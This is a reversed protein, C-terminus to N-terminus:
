DAEPASLGSIYVPSSTLPITVVGDVPEVQSVVGNAATVTAATSSSFSRVVDDGTAWAVRVVDKDTGFVVVTSTDDSEQASFSKGNLQTINLAQVFASFKPARAVVNAQPQNEFLGFNHEVNAADTGDNILDYWFYKEAGNAFASVEARILWEGQETISAGGTMTTFGLESIWVPKTAGANAQMDAYAQAVLDGVVDPTRNISAEYPHFSVADSLPLGGSKWLEVFWDSPYLGTSGSVIPLDPYADSVHRRVSDVFRVYCSAAKDCGDQSDRLNYENFVELGVLDFNDAVARAYAGYAEIAEDNNPAKSSGYLKNGYVILGLIQVGNAHMIPFERQYAEDWVYQGRTQENKEWNIDNRVESIGLSAVLSGANEYTEKEVHTGVGFRADQAVYFNDSDLVAINTDVTFGSADAVSLAYHGQPLGDLPIASLGSTVSTSGGIADGGLSPTATWTAQGEALVVALAATDTTLILSDNVIGQVAEVQEFSGNTVLNAGDDGAVVINDIGFGRVSGSLLLDLNIASEEASTTFEFEVKEWKADLEPLAFSNSGLVVSVASATPLSALVRVSASLTYTTSPALTLPASAAVVNADDAPADVRLAVAGEAADGVEPLVEGVTQSSALSWGPVSARATAVRPLAVPKEVTHGAKAGSPRPSPTTADSAFPAANQNMVAVAAAAGGGVIVLVACIILIMSKRTLRKAMDGTDQEDTLDASVDRMSLSTGNRLVALRGRAM